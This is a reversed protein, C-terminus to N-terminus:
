TYVNYTNSGAEITRKSMTQEQAAMILAETSDKLIANGAMPLIVEDKIERM